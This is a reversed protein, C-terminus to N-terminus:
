TPSLSLPRTSAAPSHAPPPPPLPHVIRLLRSVSLVFVADQLAKRQSVFVADSAAHRLSHQKAARPQPLPLMHANLGLGDPRAHSLQGHLLFRSHGGTVCDALAAFERVDCARCYDVFQRALVVTFPIFFTLAQKHGDLNQPFRADLRDSSHPARSGTSSRAHFRSSNRTCCDPSRAVGCSEGHLCQSRRM